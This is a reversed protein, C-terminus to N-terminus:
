FRFYSPAIQPMYVPVFSYRYTLVPLQQIPSNRRERVSYSSAHYANYGISAQQQERMPQVNVNSVNVNTTIPQVYNVINTPQVHHNSQSHRNNYYRANDDDDGVLTESLIILTSRIKNMIGKGMDQRQSHEKSQKASKIWEVVKFSSHIKLFFSHLSSAVAM